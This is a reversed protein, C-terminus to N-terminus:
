IKLRNMLFDIEPKQFNIDIIRSCFYLVDDSTCEQPPDDFILPCKANSTILMKEKLDIKAQLPKLINCGIIGDFDSYLETELMEIKANPMNFEKFMPITIKTKTMTKSSITNLIIPRDLETRFSNHFLGRRILSTGSGTDIM